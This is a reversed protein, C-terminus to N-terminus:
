NIRENIILWWKEKLAKKSILKIILKRVAESEINIWLKYAIYICIDYSTDFKLVKYLPFRTYHKNKVKEISNYKKRINYLEKVSINRQFISYNLEDFIIIIDSCIEIIKENKNM